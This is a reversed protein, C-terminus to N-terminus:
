PVGVYTLATIGIGAMAMGFCFLLILIVIQDNSRRFIVCVLALLMSFVGLFFLMVMFFLTACFFFM